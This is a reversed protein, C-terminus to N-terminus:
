WISESKQVVTKRAMTVRAQGNGVARALESTQGVFTSPVVAASSMIAAM